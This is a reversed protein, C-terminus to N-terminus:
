FMLVETQQHAEMLNREITRDRICHNMPPLGDLSGATSISPVEKKGRLLEAFYEATKLLAERLPLKPEWALCNRALKTDAQQRVPDDDPLPELVMESKSTTLEIVTEALELITNERPSGANVTGTVNEETDMLRVLGEVM